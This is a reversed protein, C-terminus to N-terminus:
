EFLSAQGSDETETAYEPPTWLHAELKCCGKDNFVVGEAELLRQQLDPPTTMGATSCVGQSNIVRHWPIHREDKPTAYMINGIARADYGAGLVRAVLGYTMVRGRPIRLVLEYARERFSAEDRPRTKIINKVIRDAM